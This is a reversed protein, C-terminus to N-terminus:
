SLPISIIPLEINTEYATSTSSRKKVRFTFKCVGDLGNAITVKDFALIGATDSPAATAGLVIGKMTFTLNTYATTVSSAIVQFSSTSSKVASNFLGTLVNKTLQEQDLWTPAAGSGNSKLISGSTGASTPAYINTSSTYNHAGNITPLGYYLTNATILNTSTTVATATTNNTISRTTIAGTGNGILAAGSTFTTAGTGGRSVSFTGSTIKSAPLGPIDAAALDAGATVLGNANYTIKCKTAATIATNKPVYDHTHGEVSVKTGNSYLCNDTNIYVYENSYTQTGTTSSSSQSSAGILFIKSSNKKYSSTKYDTNGSSPMTFVFSQGGVTLAYKSGHSLTLENTATSTAISVDHSHGKTEFTFWDLVNDGYITRQAVYGSAGYRWMKQTVGYQTGDTNMIPSVEVVSANTFPLTKTGNATPASTGNGWWYLGPTTLTDLNDATDLKKIFALKSASSANGELPGAFKTAYLYGNWNLRTTQSPNANSGLYFKGTNTSTNIWTKTATTSAYPEVKYTVSNTGATGTLNFIGDTASAAITHTHNGLAVTTASTGTPVYLDRTHNGTAIKLGSTYDAAQFTDTFENPNISPPMKFVINKNGVNLKYRGNYELSINEAESTDELSLKSVGIVPLHQLQTNGDGIKCTREGDTEPMFYLEGKKPVITVDVDVVNGVITYQNNLKILSTTFDLAM